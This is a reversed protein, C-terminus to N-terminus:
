QLTKQLDGALNEAFSALPMTPINPCLRNLANVIDTVSSDHRAQDLTLGPADAFRGHMYGVIWYVMLNAVYRQDSSEAASYDGCTYVFPNPPGDARAAGALSSLLAAVLLSRARQM